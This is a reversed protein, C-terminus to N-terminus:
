KSQTQQMKELKRWARYVQGVTVSRTPAFCDPDKKDAPKLLENEVAWRDATQADTNDAKVDSYLTTDAAAPQGAQKWLLDALEQRNAPIVAMQLHNKLYVESFINYGQWVALGTLVAGGAVVATTELFSSDTAAEEPMRYNTDFTLQEGPMEFTTSAKTRDFGGTLELESPEWKWVHFSMGSADTEPAELLVRTGEPVETGSPIEDGKSGDANCYYAKGDKMILVSSSVPEEIRFEKEIVPEDKGTAYICLRYDGPETPTEGAPLEEWSGAVKEYYKVTYDVAMDPDKLDVQPAGTYGDEGPLKIDFDKEELAHDIVLRATTSSLKDESLEGELVALGEGLTVGEATHGLIVAQEAAEIEVYSDGTVEIGGYYGDVAKQDVTILSVRSNEIKVAPAEYLFATEDYEENGTSGIKVTSNRIVIPDGDAGPYADMGHAGEANVTSNEIVLTSNDREAAFVNFVDSATIESNQIYIGEWLASLANQTGSGGPGILKIKANDLEIKNYLYVIDDGSSKLSLTTGDVKLSGGSQRMKPHVDTICSGESNLNLTGEGSISVVCDKNYITIGKYYGTPIAKQTSTITSETGAPVVINLEGEPAILAVGETTIDANNLTLTHSNPDYEVTGAGATYTTKETPASNKLDLGTQTIDKPAAQVM